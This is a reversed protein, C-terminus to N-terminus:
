RRAVAFAHNSHMETALAWDSSRYTTSREGVSQFRASSTPSPTTIVPGSHVSGGLTIPGGAATGTTGM